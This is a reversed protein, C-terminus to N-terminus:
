GLHSQVIIHCYMRVILHTHTGDRYTFKTETVSLNKYITATVYMIESILHQSSKEHVNKGLIKVHNGVKSMLPARIMPKNKFIIKSVM